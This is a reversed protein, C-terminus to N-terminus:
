WWGAHRDAACTEVDRDPTFFTAGDHALFSEEELVGGTQNHIRLLYDESEEGIQSIFSFLM